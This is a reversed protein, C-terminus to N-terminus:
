GDPLRYAASGPELWAQWGRHPRFVVVNNYHADPNGRVGPVRMGDFHAAVLEAVIQSFIYRNPGRGEVKCEEAISFVAVLFHDEPIQSCDASFDAIRLRDLPLRYRQVYPIGEVDLVSLERRLGEESDSLYLAPQGPPNYRRGHPDQEPPGMENSQPPAGTIGRVRFCVLTSGSVPSVLPVLYSFEQCAPHGLLEERTPLRAWKMAFAYAENGRVARGTHGFTMTWVASANSQSGLSVSVSVIRNKEAM